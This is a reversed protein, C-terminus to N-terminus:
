PRSVDGFASSIKGGTESFCSLIGEKRGGVTSWQYRLSLRMWGGRLPKCTGSEKATPMCFHPLVYPCSDKRGSTFFFRCARLILILALGAFTVSSVASVM